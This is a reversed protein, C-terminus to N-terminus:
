KAGVAGIFPAKPAALVCPSVRTSVLPLTIGASGPYRNTKRVAALRAANLPIAGVLRRWVYSANISALEASRRFIACIRPIEPFLTRVTSNKMTSSRVPTGPASVPM